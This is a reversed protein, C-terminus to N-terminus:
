PVLRPYAFAGMPGDHVKGKMDEIENYYKKRMVTERVNIEQLHAMERQAMSLQVELEAKAAATVELEGM